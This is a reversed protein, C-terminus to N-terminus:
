PKKSVFFDDFDYTLIAFNNNRCWDAISHDPSKLAPCGPDGIAKVNLGAKTLYDVNSRRALWLANEDLLVNM